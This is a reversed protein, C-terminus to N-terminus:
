ALNSVSAVDSNENVTEPLFSYSMILDKFSSVTSKCIFFSFSLIVVFFLLYLSAVIDGWSNGTKSSLFAWSESLM